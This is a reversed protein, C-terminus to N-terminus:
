ASVEFTVPLYPFCDLVISRTTSPMVIEVVSDTVAYEAADIRLTGPCPIGSIITGTLTAPNQLREMLLGDKVYFKDAAAFVDISALTGWQSLDAIELNGQVSGVIKGSADFFTKAQM